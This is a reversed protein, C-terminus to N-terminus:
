LVVVKGTVADVSITSSENGSSVVISGDALMAAPGSGSQPQGHMSYTISMSSDFDASVLTAAYGTQSLEVSYTLSPHNPDPLTACSYSNTGPDFTITQSIGSSRAFRQSTELDSAIRLAAGKCRYHDVMGSFTPAAASALIGMILVTVTVDVLSLGNRASNPLQRKHRIIRM